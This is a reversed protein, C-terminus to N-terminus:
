LSRGVGICALGSCVVGAAVAREQWQTRQRFVVLSMATALVIYANTDAVVEAASLTRMAEIVLANALTVSFYGVVGIATGIWALAGPVEGFAPGM